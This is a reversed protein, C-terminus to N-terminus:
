WPQRGGIPLGFHYEFTKGKMTAPFIWRQSANIMCDVVEQPLDTSQVTPTKPRIKGHGDDELTFALSVDGSVADADPKGRKECWRVENIHAGIIAEFIRQEAVDGKPEGLVFTMGSQHEYPEAPAEGVWGYMSQILCQLVEQDEVTTEVMEIDDYISGVDPAGLVTMSLSVAGNADSGLDDLCARVLARFDDHERRKAEEDVQPAPRAAVVPPLAKRITSRRQEWVAKPTTPPPSPDVAPELHTATPTAPKPDDPLTFWGAVGLASATAVLIAKATISMTSGKLLDPSAAATLPPATTKKFVVAASWTSRDKFSQDLAGRLRHLSRHLRSRVTAAPIKLIRGIDAASEGDLFRKLVIQQDEPALRDLEALLIRLVELRALEREPEASTEAHPSAVQERLERRADTRRQMRFLNRLVTALWPRAPRDTDRPPNAWLTVLTAQVLDDAEDADRALLAAFRQLWQLDGLALIASGSSKM